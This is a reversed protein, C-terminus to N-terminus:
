HIEKRYSDIGKDIAQKLFILEELELDGGRLQLTCAMIILLQEVSPEHKDKEADM